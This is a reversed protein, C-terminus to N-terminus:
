LSSKLKTESSAIILEPQRVPVHVFRLQPVSDDLEKGCRRARRFVHLPAQHITLARSVAHPPLLAGAAQAKSQTHTHTLAIHPLSRKSTHRPLRSKHCINGASLSSSSSFPSSPSAFSRGTSSHPLPSSCQSSLLPASNFNSSLPPPPHVSLLISPPPSLYLHPIVVTAIEAMVLILTAERPQLAPVSLFILCEAPVCHCLQPQADQM